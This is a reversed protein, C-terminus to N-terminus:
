QASAFPGDEDIEDLLDLAEQLISQLSSRSGRFENGQILKTPFFSTPLTSTRPRSDVAIHRAMRNLPISTEPSKSQFSQNEMTSRYRLFTM